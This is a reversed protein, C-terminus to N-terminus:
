AGAKAPEAAPQVPNNYEKVIEPYIPMGEIACLRVGVTNLEQIIDVVKTRVMPEPLGTHKCVYGTLLDVASQFKLECSKM